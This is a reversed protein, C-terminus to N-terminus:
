PLYTVASYSQCEGVIFSGYLTSVSFNIRLEFSLSIKIKFLCVLSNIAETNNLYNFHLCATSLKQVTHLMRACPAEFSRVRRNGNGFTLSKKRGYNPCLSKKLTPLLSICYRAVPFIGAARTRNQAGPRKSKCPWDFFCVLNGM